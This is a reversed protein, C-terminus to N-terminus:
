SSEPTARTHQMGSVRSRLFDTLQLDSIGFLSSITKEMEDIRNIFEPRFTGRVADLIIGCARQEDPEGKMLDSGVNSTMIIVANSVVVQAGGVVGAIGAAILLIQKPRSAHHLGRSTTYKRGRREPVGTGADKSM